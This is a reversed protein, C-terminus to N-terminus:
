FKAAFYDCGKGLIVINLFGTAVGFWTYTAGNMLYIFDSIIGILAGIMLILIIINKLNLKKM